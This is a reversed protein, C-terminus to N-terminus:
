AVWVRKIPVGKWELWREAEGVCHRTGANQAGAQFFALVLDAGLVVMEHNRKFGASPGHLNWQAPHVEVAPPRAFLSHHRNDYVWQNALTDAGPANGHVVVFDEEEGREPSNFWEAWALDLERYVPTEDLVQRSGTVLVRM